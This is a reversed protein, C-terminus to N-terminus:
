GGARKSRLSFDGCADSSGLEGAFGSGPAPTLEVDDFWATGTCRGWGGYLCNITIVELAGTNFTLEVQTWDQTGSVAPTGGVVADQLEHINFMAGRAGRIKVVNETKIWGSLRYDSHPKVRVRTAWSLDGGNESSIQVSRGGSHSQNALSLTGRGSHTVPNWRSPRGDNESEFSGNRIANSANEPELKSGTPKFGSLCQRFFDQMMILLLLQRLM